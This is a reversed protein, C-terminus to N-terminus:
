LVVGAWGDSALLGVTPLSSVASCSTPESVAVFKDAVLGGRLVRLGRRVGEWADTV